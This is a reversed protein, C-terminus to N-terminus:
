GELIKQKVDASKKYLRVLSQDVTDHLMRTVTKRTGPINVDPAMDALPALVFKRKHMEPHPITLKKQDMIVDNFLLIDLDICRPGWRVDRTRGLTREIDQLTALLELPTLPTSLEAVGNLFDSQAAYGIPETEYLHSVSKILISESRNVCKLARVIMDIRDGLNSGFSIYAISTDDTRV